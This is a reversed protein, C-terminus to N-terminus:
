YQISFQKCSFKTGTLGLSDRLVWLLPVEPSVDVQHTGGNVILKISPM